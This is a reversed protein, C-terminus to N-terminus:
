SVMDPPAMELRQMNRVKVKAKRKLIYKYVADDKPVPHSKLVRIVEYGVKRIMSSGRKTIKRQELLSGRNM